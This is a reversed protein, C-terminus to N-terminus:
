RGVSDNAGANKFLPLYRYYIELTCLALSTMYIRGGTSVHSGGQPTWSGTQHGQKEQMNILLERMAENWQVWGKGGINHMTQTAYYWYYIDISRLSPRNKLLIGRGSDFAPHKEPWGLYQRCLLGEATMTLKASGGPRYSYASGQSNAQASDLYRTAKQITEEPVSLYALQGSRLAMVQWGLVSTDGEDGPRYRWGGEPHQAAVIFDIAKQAAEALAPDGTMALAECLVITSQGHAYMSGVSGPGRLDGNPLQQEMLWYLGNAVTTAYQGQKHTHGAGLFPLLALATAAVDSRAGGDKCHKHCKQARNFDDLGWHGDPFQHRALWDLGAAVAAESNETGGSDLLLKGREEATRGSLQSGSIMMPGTTTAGLLENEELLSDSTLESSSFPDDEVVPEMMDSEMMLDPSQPAEDLELQQILDDTGENPQLILGLPTPEKEAALVWLGLLILLLMHTLMSSLWSNLSLVRQWTLWGSSTSPEEVPPIEGAENGPDMGPPPPPPSPNASEGPAPNGDSASVGGTTALQSIRDLSPPAVLTAQPVAPPQAGPPQTNGAQSNLGVPPNEGEAPIMDAAPSPPTPLGEACGSPLASDSM